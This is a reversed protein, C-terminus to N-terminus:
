LRGFLGLLLFRLTAETRDVNFTQLTKPNKSVRVTLDSAFCRQPVLPTGYGNCSMGLRTCENRTDSHLLLAVAVTHPILMSAKYRSVSDYKYLSYQSKPGPM